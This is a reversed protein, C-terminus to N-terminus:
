ISLKYGHSGLVAEALGALAINVNRKKGTKCCMFGTYVEKSKRPTGQEQFTNIEISLHCYACM